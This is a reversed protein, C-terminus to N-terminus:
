LFQAFQILEKPQHILDLKKSIEGLDDAIVPFKIEVGLKDKIWEVWKIHSFTQDVSLGILECDLKKFEEFKKQFAVFETTCVPTFDTPHAFFFLCKEAFVEPMKLERHTAKVVM